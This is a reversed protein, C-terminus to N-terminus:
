ELQFPPLMIQQYFGLVIIDAAVLGEPRAGELTLVCVRLRLGLRPIVLAGSLLWACWPVLKNVLAAM